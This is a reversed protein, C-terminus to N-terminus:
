CISYLLCQVPQRALLCQVPQRALLCQVPQRALLYQVAFVTCAAKSVSTEHGVNTANM